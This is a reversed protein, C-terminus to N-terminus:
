RAKYQVYGEETESREIAGKAALRRAERAGYSPKYGLKEALRELNTGSTWKTPNQKKVRALENLAAVAFPVRNDM